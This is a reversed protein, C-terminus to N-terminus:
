WSIRQEEEGDRFLTSQKKGGAEVNVINMQDPFTLLLLSHRLTLSTTPKALKVTCYLWHADSEKQMGLLQLPLMEGPKTGFALSKRLLDTTLQTVLPKPSQDLSIAAPRGTSLAKEFDDTFVKLAIELQQKQANYRVDMISAHYAHAWATLTAALLVPLVLLKRLM